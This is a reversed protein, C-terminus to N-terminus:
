CGPPLAAPVEYVDVVYTVSSGRRAQVVVNGNTQIQSYGQNWENFKGVETADSVRGVRYVKLGGQAAPDLDHVVVTGDGGSIHDSLYSWKEIGSLQLTWVGEVLTMWFSNNRADVLVKGPGAPYFGDGLRDAQTPNPWTIAQSNSWNALNYSTIRDDNFRLSFVYNDAIGRPSTSSDILVIQERMRPGNPTIDFIADSSGSGTTFRILIASPGVTASLLNIGPLVSFDVVPSLVWGNSASWDLQYFKQKATGPGQVLTVFRNGAGGGGYLEVLPNGPIVPAPVETWAGSVRAFSRLTQKNAEVILLVDTGLSMQAANVQFRYRRVWGDSADLPLFDEGDRHLDGDTDPNYPDTGLIAEQANALPDGDINDDCADGHADGDVNGQDANSVERCNDVADGAGDGDGDASTPYPDVRDNLGDDDTDADYPDSGINDEEDNSLGDNDIDPDCADGINDGEFDEQGPNYTGTCNDGYDSLTDGDADWVSAQSSYIYFESPRSDDLNKQGVSLLTSSASVLSGFGDGNKPRRSAKYGVYPWTGDAAREHRVVMGIQNGIGFVVRPAGIFATDGTLAVAEGLRSGASGAIEAVVPWNADGDDEFVYARDIAPAGVLIRGNDVAIAKGFESAAGPSALTGAPSWNGNGDHRYVYVTGSGTAGVLALDDLLAVSEGFKNGSAPSTFTTILAGTGPDFLDAAGPAAGPRGVLLTDSRLAVAQGFKEATGGRVLTREHVFATGDNFYLHVRGGSSPLWAGGFPPYVFETLVETSGVAIRAGHIALSAGFREVSAPNPLPPPYLNQTAYPTGNFPGTVIVPNVTYDVQTCCSGTQWLVYSLNSNGVLAWDSAASATPQMYRVDPDVLLFNEVVVADDLTIFSRASTDPGVAMATNSMTSAVLLLVAPILGQVGMTRRGQPTLQDPKQAM